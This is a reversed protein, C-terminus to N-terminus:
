ASAQAEAELKLIRASIAEAFQQPTECTKAMAKMAKGGLGDEGSNFTRFADQCHQETRAYALGLTKLAPGSLSRAEESKGKEGAEILKAYSHYSLLATGLHRFAIEDKFFNTAKPGHKSQKM